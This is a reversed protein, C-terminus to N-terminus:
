ESALPEEGGSDTLLTDDESPFNGLLQGDDTVIVNDESRAYLVKLVREVLMSPNSNGGEEEHVQLMVEIGRLKEFYFDREKEVANITLELESNKRSLESNKQLLVADAAIADDVRERNRNLAVKPRRTNTSPFSPAKKSTNSIPYKGSLSNKTSNNRSPAAATNGGKPMFQPLLKKGGKGLVRRALPDYDDRFPPSAQEYFAKLWQCFELNDQYKARILRDVDISKQIRNKTFSAQLLKYNEVYQFDSHAEWNVRKMAVSGPYIYDMLQCAVAGTATQEIKSLSMRLLDNFLDLIDKRSTFYAGDMMGVVNDSPGTNM